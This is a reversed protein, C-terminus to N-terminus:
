DDIRETLPKLALEGAASQELKQIRVDAEDLKAQCAKVLRIGEEFRTLMEELPLDGAEMTDVISELKQLAEEFPLPEKTAGSPGASKGTNPVLV